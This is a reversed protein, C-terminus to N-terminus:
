SMGSIDCHGAPYQFHNGEVGPEARVASHVSLVARATACSELGGCAGRPWLLERAVAAEVQAAVGERGM